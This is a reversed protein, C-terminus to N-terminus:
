LFGKLLQKFQDPKDLYCAHRAESIIEAKGNKLKKFEQLGKEPNAVTDKSGWIGLVPISILELKIHGLEVPGVAILKEIKEQNREAYKLALYGSASAGLLAPKKGIKQVLASIVELEEEEGLSIKNRSKPFGPVDLAYVSYGLDKLFKPLQIQEWVDSNFSYGHLLVISKNGGQDEFYILSNNKYNFNAEHM